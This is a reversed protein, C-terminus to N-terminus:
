DTQRSGVLDRRWLMVTGPSEMGELHRLESIDSSYLLRLPSLLDTYSAISRHWTHPRSSTALGAGRTEECLLLTGDLALVRLLEDCATTIREPPIHQLVTWTTVLGFDSDPFPLATASGNIFKLDPYARRAQALAVDNIDVAVHFASFEAFTPALRGFGCGIELSRKTSLGELARRIYKTEYNHRALLAAPSRASVFGAERFTISGDALHIWRYGLKPHSPLLRRLIAAPLRRPQRMSRVLSRANM